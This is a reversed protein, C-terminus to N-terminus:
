GISGRRGRGLVVVSPGFGEPLCTMARSCRVVAARVVGHEGDSYEEVEVV